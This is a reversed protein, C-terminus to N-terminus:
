ANKDIESRWGTLIPILPSLKINGVSTLGAIVNTCTYDDWPTVEEITKVTKKAMGKLKSTDKFVINTLGWEDQHKWYNATANIISVITSGEHYTDGLDLAKSKPINNQTHISTIYKQIATFGLGVFYEAKDFHGESDPCNSQEIDNEIAEIKSDLLELVDCLNNLEHDAFENEIKIYTM